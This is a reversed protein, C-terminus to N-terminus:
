TLLKTTTVSLQKVAVPLLYFCAFYKCGATNILLSFSFDSKETVTCEKDRPTDSVHPTGKKPRQRKKQLSYLRV